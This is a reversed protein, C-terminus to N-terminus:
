SAWVTSSHRWMIVRRARLLPWVKALRISSERGRRQASSRASRWITSLRSEFATFNVGGPPSIVILTPQVEDPPCYRLTLSEPGPMGSSSSPVTIDENPRPESAILVASCPEPRPRGITFPRISRWPPPKWSLDFGRSPVSTITVKGALRPM